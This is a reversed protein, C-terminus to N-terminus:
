TGFIVDAEYLSLVQKELDYNFRDDDRRLAADLILSILTLIRCRAGLGLELTTFRDDPFSKEWGRLWTSVVPREENVMAQRILKYAAFGLGVAIPYPQLHELDVICAVEEDRMLLNLPHYDLHMPVCPQSLLEPHAEIKALSELIANRHTACLEAVDAYKTAKDESINLLEQLDHPYTDIQTPPSTFLRKAALSLEGFAEAAARLEAGKGSFYDGEAFEYLVGCKEEHVSVLDGPRSRIIQPVKQGLESLAFTLEAESTMKAVSSKGRLKVFFKASPTELKLNQSSINAGSFVSLKLTALEPFDYDARLLSAVESAIVPDNLPTFEPTRRSLNNPQFLKM